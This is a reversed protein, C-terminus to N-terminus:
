GEVQLNKAHSYYIDHQRAIKDLCNIGPDGRNLRKELETGICNELSPWFDKFTWVGDVKNGGGGGGGRGRM